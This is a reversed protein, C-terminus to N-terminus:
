YEDSRRNKGTEIAVPRIEQVEEDKAWGGDALSELKGSGEHGDEGRRFLAFLSHHRRGQYGPTTQSVDEAYGGATEDHLVDQRDVQVSEDLAWAPVLDNFADALADLGHGAELLWIAFLNHHAVFIGQPNGEGAACHKGEDCHTQQQGNAQGPQPLAELSFEFRTGLYIRSISLDM